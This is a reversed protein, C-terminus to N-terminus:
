VEALTQEAGAMHHFVKAHVHRIFLTAWLSSGKMIIPCCAPKSLMKVHVLHGHARILDDTYVKPNLNQLEQDSLKTGDEKQALRFQVERDRQLEDPELVLSKHEDTRLIRLVYATVWILKQWTGTVKPSGEFQCGPWLQWAFTLSRPKLLPPENRDSSVFHTVFHRSLSVKSGNTQIKFLFNPDRGGFTRNKCNNLQSVERSRM